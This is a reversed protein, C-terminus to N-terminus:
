RTRLGHKAKLGELRLDGPKSQTVAFKGAWREVFSGTKRRTPMSTSRLFGEVLGSVTTQKAHALKKAQRSVEPDISVTIRHKM